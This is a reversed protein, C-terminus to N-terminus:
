EACTYVVMLSGKFSAGRFKETGLVTQCSSEIESDRTMETRMTKELGVKNKGLAPGGSKLDIILM